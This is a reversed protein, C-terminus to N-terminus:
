RGERLREGLADPLGASRLMRVSREVDYEVRRLEASQEEPDVLAFAARPDGDRPQGVAGPNILVARASAPWRLRGDFRPEACGDATLWGCMPVHTHGCLAVRPWEPHQAVARLNTELMTSTVYGSYHSPNLYCGHVAVLGSESAIFPRAALWALDDQDLQERTWDRVFRAHASTGAASGARVVDVDHNGAVTVDAAARVRAVCARPEANYGVVDGLCVLREADCAAIAALVAELAPANAHVDAIVAVRM